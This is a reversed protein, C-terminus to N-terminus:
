CSKCRLCQIVQVGLLGLLVAGICVSYFFTDRIGTLTHVHTVTPIFWSSGYARELYDVAADRKPGFLVLDVFTSRNTMTHYKGLAYLTDFSDDMDFTENPWLTRAMGTFSYRNNIETVPFVDIFGCFGPKSIKWVGSIEAPKFQLNYILAIKKLTEIDELKVALDIDDDHKIIDGHRVSGLLAGSCLWYRFSEKKCMDHFEAALCRLDNHVM